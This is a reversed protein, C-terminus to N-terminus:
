DTVYRYGRQTFKGKGDCASCDPDCEYRNGFQTYYGWGNCTRCNGFTCSPCDKEVEVWEWHGGGGGGIDDDDVSPTPPEKQKEHEEEFTIGPNKRYAFVNPQKTTIMLDGGSLLIDDCEELFYGTYTLVWEYWEIVNGKSKLEYYGSNILDQVYEEALTYVNGTYTTTYFCYWDADDSDGLSKESCYFGGDTYTVPDAIVTGGSYVAKGSPKPTATPKPTPKPTPSPTATPKPPLTAPNNYSQVVGKSVLYAVSSFDGIQNDGVWLERLKTLEELPKLDNIQNNSLNLEYLNTLGSLPTLDGIQNNSLNLEDLNTLGSLPSLDFVSNDSVRLIELNTLNTLPSLDGIQNSNLTLWKLKNLGALVTLDTMGCGIIRLDELNAARELGSFDNITCDKLYLTKLNPMYWLDALTSIEANWIELTKVGRLMAYTARNGKVKSDYGLSQHAAKRIAEDEFHYIWNGQPTLTPIPTNAPTPTPESLITEACASCKGDACYEGKCVTKTKGGGYAEKEKYGLGGCVDCLGDNGCVDCKARCTPCVGDECGGECVVKTMGGGYAEEEQYGLGGCTDCVTDGGCIPCSEALAPVFLLLCLLLVLIKKM